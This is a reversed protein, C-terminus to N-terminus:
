KFFSYFAQILFAVTKEKLLKSGVVIIAAVRGPHTVVVEISFGNLFLVVLEAVELAPMGRAGPNLPLEPLERDAASTLYTRIKLIM